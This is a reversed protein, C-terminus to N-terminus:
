MLILLLIIISGTLPYTVFLVYRCCLVIYFNLLCMRGDCLNKFRVEGGVLYLHYGKTKPGPSRIITLSAYFQIEYKHSGIDLAMMLYNHLNETNINFVINGELYVYHKRSTCEAGTGTANNM